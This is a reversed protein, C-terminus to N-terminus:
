HSAAQAQLRAVMPLDADAASLLRLLQQRVTRADRGRGARDYLDALAVRVQLWRAGAGFAAASTRRASLAELLQIAEGGYGGNELLGAIQIAGETHRPLFALSPKVRLGESLSRVTEINTVPSEALRLREACDQTYSRDTQHEQQFRVLDHAEVLLGLDIFLGTLRWAAAPNRRLTRLLQRLAVHDGRLWLAAAQVRRATYSEDEPLAEAIAEARRAAGLTLYVYSLQEAIALRDDRGFTYLTRAVADAERKASAPDDRLWALTAPFLRIMASEEPYRATAMSAAAVAGYREALSLDGTLLALSLARSNLSFSNPRIDAIRRVIRLEELPEDLMQLVNEINTLAWLHEPQEELAAEYAGVAQTLEIRRAAQDAAAFARLHHVSGSIFHRESDSVGSAFRLADEAHPMYDRVDRGQNFIAWAALLHASAFMPDEHIADLLLQEAAPNNWQHNGSMQSVARTYLQAARLSPTTVKEVQSISRSAEGLASRISAAQKRVLMPLATTSDVEGSFSAQVTGDASQIL